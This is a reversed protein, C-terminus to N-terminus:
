VGTDPLEHDREILLAANGRQLAISLRQFFHKIELASSKGWRRADQTAIKKLFTVAENDWGGFSEVVLPQFFIGEARCNDFHARIKTAKRSEIAAASTDAARHLLAEQTPSIVSVDFAIKRGDLWQPIFIDAPRLQRGPILRPMEKTSNLSAQQAERFIKDRIRDHRGGRIGHDHRHM